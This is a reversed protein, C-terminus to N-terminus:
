HELDMGAKEKTLLDIIAISYKCKGNHVHLLENIDLSVKGVVVDSKLPFKCLIEIVVKSYATVLRSIFSHWMLLFGPKRRLHKYCQNSLEAVGTYPPM